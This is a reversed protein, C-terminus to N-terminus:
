CMGMDSPTSSSSGMGVGREGVGREGVGRWRICVCVTVDEVEDVGRLGLLAGKGGRGSNRTVAVKGIAGERHEGNHIYTRRRRRWVAEHQRAWAVRGIRGPISIHM